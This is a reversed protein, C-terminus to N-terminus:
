ALCFYILVIIFFIMSLVCYAIFLGWEFKYSTESPTVVPVAKQGRATMAVGADAGDTMVAFVFICVPNHFQM